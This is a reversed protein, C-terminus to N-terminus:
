KTKYLEERINILIKTAKDEDPHERLASTEYHKEISAILDDAM